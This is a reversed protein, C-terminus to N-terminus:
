YSRANAYTYTNINTNNNILGKTKFSPAKDRPQVSKKISECECKAVVLYIILLLISLIRTM